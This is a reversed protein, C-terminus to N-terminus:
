FPCCNEGLKEAVRERKRELVAQVNQPLFRERNGKLVNESLSVVRVNGRVYGLSADIRDISVTEGRSKAERDWAAASDMMGLFYDYTLSFELKRGRAHDQLARYASRKPNNLRYRAQWHAHCWWYEGVKKKPGAAKDRCNKVCCTHETPKKKFEFLGEATLIELATM